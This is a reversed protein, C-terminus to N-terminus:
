STRGPLVQRAGRLEVGTWRALEEFVETEIIQQDATFSCRLSRVEFGVFSHHRKTRNPPYNAAVFV